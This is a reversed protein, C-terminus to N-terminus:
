SNAMDEMKSSNSVYRLNSAGWSRTWNWVDQVYNKFEDASLVIQDDVSMELMQISLDYDRTHDVPEELSVFQRLEFPSGNRAKRLQSDLLDIAVERYKEQAELFLGRHTARNSRIIGLLNAKEVKVTKM